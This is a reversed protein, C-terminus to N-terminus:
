KKYNDKILSDNELTYYLIQGFLKLWKRFFTLDHFIQYFHCIFYPVLISM